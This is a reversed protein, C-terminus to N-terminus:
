QLAAFLARFVPPNRLLAHCGLLADAATANAENEYSKLQENDCKDRPRGEDLESCDVNELEFYKDYHEKVCLDHAIIGMLNLSMKLDGWEKVKARQAAIDREIAM